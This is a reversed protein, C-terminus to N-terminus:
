DLFNKIRFEPKIKLRECVFNTYDKQDTASWTYILDRVTSNPTLKTSTEGKCKKGLDWLLAEWGKSKTEFIAFKEADYGSAMPSWRLNGPNNNRNARSNILYFGEFIAMAEALERLNTM